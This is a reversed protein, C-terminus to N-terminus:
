IHYFLQALSHIGSCSLVCVVLVVRKILFVCFYTLVSGAVVWNLNHPMRMATMIDCSDGTVFHLLGDLLWTGTGTVHSDMGKRAARWISFLNGSVDPGYHVNTLRLM